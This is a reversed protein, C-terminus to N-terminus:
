QKKHTERQVVRGLQVRSRLGLKKLASSVHKEATRPSIHLLRAIEDNSHGGAVLEAVERERDSLLSTSARPREVELRRLDRTAGLRRYTELAREEEAGAEYARAALWPWGIAEFGAAAALARERIGAVVIGRQAAFAEFLAAVAKNVRDQPRAAARALQARMALVDSKRAFQAAALYAFLFRHPGPLVRAMQGLWDEAAEIEGRMGLAWAYPGGFLGIALKMERDVGYRLFSESDDLRLLADDGWCIGLAVQAAKVHVLIAYGQEPMSRADPLLEAATAFDGRLTHELSSAATALITIASPHRERRTPIVNRFHERASEIEGLGLADLAIQCHTHRRRNGGDDLKLSAEIGRAAERRWVDIEGRMAAAKFRVQHAYSAAEPDSPPDSMERLFAGANEVDFAAICNYAIRARLLDLRDAPLKEALSEVADRYVATAAAANGSNYLQAGLAAANRAFGEFDGARGYLAAARRLREIGAQLQDLSGLAMGIKHVLSADEDDRAALAREYYSVADAFAGIAAARDGALEDYHAARQVDGARRWHHALEVVVAHRDARQELERAIAEHLPRVREPLLEGYLVEQILAHRFQVEGGDADDVLHLARAREVADLVADRGADLTAVLRDVSFRQGLAAALVVIRREQESLHAARALVASRISLPLASSAARSPAAVANKVLEQAFFPNGQSRKVIDAITEAPLARAHPLSREVLLRSSGYDLPRLEITEVNTKSLLAAFDSLKPHLAGIQDISYSAVLLLRRREVRDALFSLYALTSRDAWHLDDVFLAVTGRNAQRAFAADIAELLSGTSLAAAEAGANREFSLRDVLSRTAPDHPGKERRDLSQLLERLPGFPTQVFEICRASAVASRAGGFTSEVHRLLRSKGIGAEGAVLVIRGRGESAARRFAVVRESETERGLLESRSRLSEAKHTM